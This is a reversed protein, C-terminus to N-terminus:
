ALGFAAKTLEWNAVRDPADATTQVCQTLYATNGADVDSILLNKVEDSCKTAFYWAATEFNYNDDNLKEVMKRKEDDTMEEASSFKVYDASLEPITKIYELNFEAGQMNSTGRGPQGDKYDPFHHNRNAVFGGSEFTTIAVVAAIQNIHYVGYRVLGEALHPAVEAATSCEGPYEQPGDCSAAKPVIKLLTDVISLGKSTPAASAVSAIGLSLVTAAFKM